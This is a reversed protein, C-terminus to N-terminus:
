ARKGVIFVRERTQPVGFDKANLLKFDVMYGISCLEEIIRVFADRNNKDLIGRVNELVFYEPEIGKLLRFVDFILEGRGKSDKFGQSLGARSWAQCPFGAFLINAGKYDSSKTEKVDKYFKAGDKKFKYRLNDRRNDEFECYYKVNINDSLRSETGACGSFLSAGILQENGVLCDVVAKALYGPIGNGCMQKRQRDSQEYIEGSEKMGYKTYNDPYGQIREAEIASMERISLNGEKNIFTIKPTDSVTITRSIDCTLAGNQGLHQSYISVNEKILAARVEEPMVPTELKKKYVIKRAENSLCALNLIQDIKEQKLTLKGCSHMKPDIISVLEPTKSKFKELGKLDFLMHQYKKNIAQIIQLESNTRTM